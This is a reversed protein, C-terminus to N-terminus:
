TKKRKRPKPKDRYVKDGTRDGGDRYAESAAGHVIKEMNRKMTLAWGGAQGLTPDGRRLMELFLNNVVAAVCGGCLPKDQDGGNAARFAADVADAPAPIQALAHAQVDPAVLPWRAVIDFIYHLNTRGGKLLGNMLAGLHGMERTTRDEDIMVTWAEEGVDAESARVKLIHLTRAIVFESLADISKDGIIRRETRPCLPAAPHHGRIQSTVVQEWEHLERAITKGIPDDTHALLYEVDPPVMHTARAWLPILAHTAISTGAKARLFASTLWGDAIVVAGREMAPQIVAETQAICDAVVDDLWARTAYRLPEKTTTATVRVVEYGQEPLTLAAALRDALTTRGSAIPGDLTIFLGTDQKMFEKTAIDNRGRM